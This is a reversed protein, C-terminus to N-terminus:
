ISDASGSAKKKTKQKKPPRSPPPPPHHNLWWYITAYKGSVKILVLSCVRIGTCDTHNVTVSCAPGVLITTHAWM